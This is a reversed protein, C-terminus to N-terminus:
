IRKKALFGIVRRLTTRVYKKKLEPSPSHGLFGLFFPIKKSFSTAPFKGSIRYNAFDLLASQEGFTQVFRTQCVPCEFSEGYGSGSLADNSLVKLRPKLLDFLLEADRFQPPGHWDMFLRFSEFACPCGASFYFDLLRGFATKAKQIQQRNKRQARMLVVDWAIGRDAKFFGTKLRAGVGSQVMWGKNSWEGISVFRCPLLWKGNRAILGFRDLAQSNSVRAAGHFFADAYSFRFSIVPNGSLDVYGWRGAENCVPARGESFHGVFAFRPAVVERGRVDLFGYQNNQKFSVRKQHVLGLSSYKKSLSISYRGRSDLLGWAGNKQVTFYGESPGLVGDLDARVAM